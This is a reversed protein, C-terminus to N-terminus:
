LQGGTLPLVQGTFFSAGPSLLFAVSGAVDEPSCLRGAPVKAADALIKRETTVANLGVPVLSPSVANVTINQRAMEPALLRVTHELAAKGLSYAALNLTPKLTGLTTGLVVLRATKGARSKLFHAIRLTVVTGFNVQHAVVEAGVDLLSGQPAGPWATHVVAYLERGRLLQDVTDEWNSSTLDAAVWEAGQDIGEQIIRSPSRTVALVHYSPTLSSVLFSGLGGGAGTVLVLPKREPKCEVRKRSRTQVPRSEHLSFGVTIEATVVSHPSEVIQVRLVGNGSEPMWRTIEGEVRIRSPYHLPAPFRCGFSGVVVHRGPLYMGAMTSALAVQFAGHVIRGSYNTQGAYAEDIHLPNCDGSLVAFSEVDESTVERDFDAKLGVRLDSATLTRPEAM